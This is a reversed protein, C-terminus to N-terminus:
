LYGRLAIEVARRQPTSGFVSGAAGSFWQWQLSLDVRDWRYRAELWQARSSTEGEHRVFASLDLRWARNETM